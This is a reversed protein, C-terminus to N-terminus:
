IRMYHTSRLQQCLYFFITSFFSSAYINMREVFFFTALISELALLASFFFSLFRRDCNRSMLTCLSCKVTKKKHTAYINNMTTRNHNAEYLLETLNRHLRRNNFHKNKETQETKPYNRSTVTHMHECDTCHITKKKNQM